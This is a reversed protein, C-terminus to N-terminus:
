LLSLYNSFNTILKKCIKFISKIFVLKIKCNLMCTSVSAGEADLSDPAAVAGSACVRCGGTGCERQAGQAATRKEGKQRTKVARLCAARGGLAPGQWASRLGWRPRHRAPLSSLERRRTRLARGATPRRWRGAALTAHQKRQPDPPFIRAMSSGRGLTLPHGWLGGAPGGPRICRPSCPGAARGPTGM